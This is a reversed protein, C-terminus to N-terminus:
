KFPEKTFTYSLSISENILNSKQYSEEEEEDKQFTEYSHNVKQVCCCDTKDM